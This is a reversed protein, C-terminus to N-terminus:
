QSQFLLMGASEQMLNLDMSLQNAFAVSGLDLEAGFMKVPWQIRTPLLLTNWSYLSTLRIKAPNM